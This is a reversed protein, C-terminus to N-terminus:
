PIRTENCVELITNIFSKLEPCQNITISLDNDRLIRNADRPKIYSDRCKGREFIDKIHYSPPKNHNVTEPAGSPANANHGALKKITPWYPLLWSEFDYLAVHPHFRVEEAGVWDRMKAKADTADLFDHLTTGTYVDTLAIVHDASNRGSLLNKVIRKLKDGKPIRGDYRHFDLKPMAGALRTELYERLYPKFADETAGEVMITIKM